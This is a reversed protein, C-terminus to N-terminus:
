KDFKGQGMKEVVTILWGEEEGARPIRFDNLETAKSKIVTWSDVM